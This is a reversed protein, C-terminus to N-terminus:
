FKEDKPWLHLKKTTVSYDTSNTNGKQQNEVINTILFSLIIKVINQINATQLKKMYSFLSLQQSM